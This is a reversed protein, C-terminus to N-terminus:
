AGAFVDANRAKPFRTQKAVWGAMKQWHTPMTPTAVSVLERNWEDAETLGDIREVIAKATAPDAVVRDGMIGDSGVLTIRVGQEGVYQLVATASGGHAAVFTAISKEVEAPVKVAAPADTTSM